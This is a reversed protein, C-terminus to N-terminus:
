DMDRAMIPITSTNVFQCIRPLRYENGMVVIPYSALLESALFAARITASFRSMSVIGRIGLVTSANLAPPFVDYETSTLGMGVCVVASANRTNLSYMMSYRESIM